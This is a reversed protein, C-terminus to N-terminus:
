AAPLRDLSPPRLLPRPSRSSAYITAIRATGVVTLDPDFRPPSAAFFVLGGICQCQGCRAASTGACDSKGSTGCPTRAKDCGKPVPADGCFRQCGSAAACSPAAAPAGANCSTPPTAPQSIDLMTVSASSIADGAPWLGLWLALAGLAIRGIWHRHTM